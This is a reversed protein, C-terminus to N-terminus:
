TTEGFLTTDIAVVLDLLAIRTEELAASWAARLLANGLDRQEAPTLQELDIILTAPLFAPLTRFFSHGESSPCSRPRQRNTTPSEAAASRLCRRDLLWLDFGLLCFDTRM